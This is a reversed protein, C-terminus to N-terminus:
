RRYNEEEEEEEISAKRKTPLGTTETDFVMIIM